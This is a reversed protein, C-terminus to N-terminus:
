HETVEDRVPPTDLVQHREVVTVPLGALRAGCCGCLGQEHRVERDPRAVQVLTTGKHGDQGGPRRGSKKRLSRPAPKALGESSPPKSSNRSNQKLRAELEAIRELARDLESRKEALEARLSVVLAALVEYPPPGQDAPV